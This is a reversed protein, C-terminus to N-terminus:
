LIVEAGPYNGLESEDIEIEYEKYDLWQKLHIDGLFVADFGQFMDLPVGGHIEFDEEIKCGIVSGHYCAINIEGEIPEVNVWNDEDFISFVCLNYGEDIQYVGSNKYLHVRPHGLAEVIPSVADQRTKNRENFDHNGLIIHTEAADGMERLMWVMLDIYEASLGSTKTHFVDGGVFIHDIKNKKVDEVFATVVTRIEDHRTLSRVHVDAITAFRLM